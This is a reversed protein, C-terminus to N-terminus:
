LVLDKGVCWDCLLNLEIVLVMGIGVMDVGSVLM